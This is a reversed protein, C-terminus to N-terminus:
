QIPNGRARTNHSIAFFQERNVKEMDTVIKNNGTIDTEETEDGTNLDKIKQNKRM